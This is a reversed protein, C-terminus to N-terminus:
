EESEQVPAAVAHKLQLYQHIHLRAAFACCLFVGSIHTEFWEDLSCLILFRCFLWVLLQLCIVMYSVYM